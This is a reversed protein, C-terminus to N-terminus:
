TMFSIVFLDFVFLFEFEFKDMRDFIGIPLSDISAIREAKDYISGLKCLSSQNFTIQAM